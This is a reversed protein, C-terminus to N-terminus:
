KAALYANTKGSFAAFSGGGSLKAYPANNQRYQRPTIGNKDFFLKYFHNLNTCGTQAAIQQVTLDTSRLLEQVRTLRKIEVLRMFSKGTKKLILKSLKKYDLKLEAALQTLSANLYNVNIYRMVRWIVFDQAQTFMIQATQKQLHILLLGTTIQLITQDYNERDTLSLILNQILNQIHPIGATAFYLYSPSENRDLLSDVFFDYLFSSDVDHKIMELVCDLFQPRIIFNILIAGDKLALTSQTTHLGIFLLDGAKQVVREGNIYHEAEGRVLFPIEVYNHTHTPVPWSRFQPVLAIMESKELYCDAEYADITQNQLALYLSPEEYALTEQVTDIKDQLYALLDEIQADTFM